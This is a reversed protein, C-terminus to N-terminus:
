LNTRHIAPSKGQPFEGWLVAPGTRIGVAEDIVRAETGVASLMPLTNTPVTLTLLSIATCVTLCVATAERVAATVYTSAMTAAGAGISISWNFSTVLTETNAPIAIAVARTSM